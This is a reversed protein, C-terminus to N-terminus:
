KIEEYSSADTPSGGKFRFRKGGQQVITGPKLAAGQVPAATAPATPPPVAPASEKALLSNLDADLAEYQKKFQEYRPTGPKSGIMEKFVVQKESSISRLKAERDPDRHRRNFFDLHEQAFKIQEPDGSQKATALNDQLETLLKDDVTAASTARTVLQGTLPDYRWENRAEIQALTAAQKNAIAQAQLKALQETSWQNPGNAGFKGEIIASTTDIGEQNLQAALKTAALQQEQYTKTWTTQAAAHKASMVMQQYKQSKLPPEPADVMAVPNQAYQQFWESYVPLDEKQAALDLSLAENALGQHEVALSRAQNQIAMGQLELPLKRKMEERQTALRIADIIWPSQQPAPGLSQALWPPVQTDLAM